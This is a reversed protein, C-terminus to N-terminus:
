VQLAFKELAGAFDLKGRHADHYMSVLKFSIEKLEDLKFNHALGLSKQFVFPKLGAAEASKSQSALLMAKVQWFLIGHIEEDAINKMKAKTFLTWLVKRDRHGLADTLSFINFQTDRSAAEASRSFEQIKESNKEFKELTKKDLEGELFVFINESEKIEKLKKLVAEKAEKNAFLNDGEVIMKQSFLGAGGVREALEAGSFSEATMKVHSADPKKKILGGVLEGLKRRAKERDSGYLLYIM